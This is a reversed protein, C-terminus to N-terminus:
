TGAARKMELIASVTKSSASSFPGAELMAEASKKDGTEAKRVVDAACRHFNAHETKLTPYSALYSYQSGAGYIWRGLECVNDKAVTASELKEGTGNIFMRLRTKWRVHAAIADDFDM